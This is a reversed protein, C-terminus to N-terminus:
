QAEDATFGAEKGGLNEAIITWMYEPFNCIAFVSIMTSLLFKDVQSNFVADEPMTALSQLTHTPVRCPNNTTL